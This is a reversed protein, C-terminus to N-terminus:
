SCEAFEAIDNIWFTFPLDSMMIHVFGDRVTGLSTLTLSHPCISKTLARLSNGHAAIIVRKGSRTNNASGSCRSYLKMIKRRQLRASDNYRALGALLQLWSRSFFVTWIYLNVLSSMQVNDFILMNKIIAYEPFIGGLVGASKQM